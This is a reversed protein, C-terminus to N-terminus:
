GKPKRSKAKLEAIVVDLTEYQGNALAEACRRAIEADYKVVVDDKAFEFWVWQWYVTYHLKHQADWYWPRHLIPVFTQLLFLSNAVFTIFPVLLRVM